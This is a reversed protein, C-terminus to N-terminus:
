LMPLGRRRPGRPFAADIRAIEAQSLHIDSAGANEEVHELRARKM